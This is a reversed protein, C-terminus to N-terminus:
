FVCPHAHDSETTVLNPIWAISKNGVFHCVPITGHKVKLIEYLMIPDMGRTDHHCITLAKAKTGNSIAKINKGLRSISFDMMSELSTTCFKDEGIAAMRGCFRNNSGWIRGGLPQSTARISSPQINSPKHLGLPMKKNSHIDHEFFATWYQKEESLLLDSLPKPLPTNPWVSHWYDEASQSAESVRVTLISDYKWIVGCTM